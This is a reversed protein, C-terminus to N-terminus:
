SLKARMPVPTSSRVFKSSMVVQASLAPAILPMGSKPTVIVSTASCHEADDNPTLGAVSRHAVLSWCGCVYMPFVPAVWYKTFFNPLSM